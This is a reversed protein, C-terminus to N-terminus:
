ETINVLFTKRKGVGAREWSRRYEFTLSVAGQTLVEFTFEEVGPAGVLDPPDDDSAPRYDSDVLRALANDSISYVKWRYGTTANGPIAVLFRAGVAVTHPADPDTFVVPADAAPDDDASPGGSLTVRQLLGVPLVIEAETALRFTISDDQLNGTFRDGSKMTVTETGDPESRFVIELVDNTRLELAAYATKLSFAGDLVVGSLRDGNRFFLRDVDAPIDAPPSDDAEADPGPLPVTHAEATLADDPAGPVVRGLIWSWVNLSWREGDDGGLPGAPLFYVKTKGVIVRAAPIQGSGYEALPIFDDASRPARLYLWRRTELGVPVSIGFGRIRVRAGSKPGDKVDAPATVDSCGASTPVDDNLRLAKPKFDDEDRTEKIYATRLGLLGGYVDLDVGRLLLRGHGSELWTKIINRHESTLDAPDFRFRVLDGAGAPNEALRHIDDLDIADFTPRTGAAIDDDFPAPDALVPLFLSLTLLLAASLPFLIRM